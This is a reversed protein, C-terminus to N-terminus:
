PTPQFIVRPTQMIDPNGGSTSGPRVYARQTIFVPVAQPLAATTGLAICYTPVATCTRAVFEVYLSPLAAKLTSSASDYLGLSRLVAEASGTMVGSNFGVALPNTQSVSAVGTITQANYVALSIYSANNTVAHNVGAVIAINNGTLKGIVGSRYSDTDQNDGLCSTGAAICEGGVLGFIKGTSDVHDSVTMKITTTAGSSQHATLWTSLSSSLEDLPTEYNAESTAIKPTNVPTPYRATATNSSIRYVRISSRISRLWETSAAADEPLAYRLLTLIDDAALTPGTLINAGIPEIFVHTSDLGNAAANAKISDAVNSNSASVYVIPNGGWFSGISRELIVSNVDNGFSGFIEYRSPNPSITKGSSSGTYESTSRSFLYGQYGLYAAKPPPSVITVLADRDSLRYFMNSPSGTEGFTTFIGGYYPDVLTSDIPPVPVIYPAAANNGFCSGFVMVFRECAANDVVAVTGQDVTYGDRNLNKVWSEWAVVDTKPSEIPITVGPQSSQGGVSITVPNEGASLSPVVVNIQFQGPYVLAAGTVTANQSGISVTVPSQVAIPGNLGTGAPSPEIGTAYLSLVDGTKALRVSNGSIIPDGVWTSTGNYVASPYSEAGSKYTFLGPSSRVYTVPFSNSLGFYQVQVSVTGTLNGPVQVTLRDPSVYCVAAALGNFTVQVGSLNTPLAAGSTFDGANWPRSVDSLNRGQITVWSGAVIGPQLSADNVVASIVPASAPTSRLPRVGPGFLLVLM